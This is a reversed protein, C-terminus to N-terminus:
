QPPKSKAQEAQQKGPEGMRSFQGFTQHQPQSQYRQPPQFEPQQQYQQQHQQQQQQQSQFQLGPYQNMFAPSPANMYQAAFYPFHQPYQQPYQPPFQQPIQYQQYPSPYYPMNYGTNSSGSVPFMGNRQNPRNVDNPNLNANSVSGFAPSKNYQVPQVSGPSQGTIAGNALQLAFLSLFVSSITNKFM